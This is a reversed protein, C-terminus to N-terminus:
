RETNVEADRENVRRRRTYVFRKITYAAERRASLLPICDDVVVQNKM